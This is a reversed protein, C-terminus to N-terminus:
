APPPSPNGSSLLHPFNLKAKAGRMQFAARDYALAADQPTEYTGLWTRAGNRKPDRIEAAYKGWPRRRVGKYRWGGGGGGKEKKKEGAEGTGSSSAVHSGIEELEAAPGVAAAGPLLLDAAIISSSTSACISLSSNTQVTTWTDDLPSPHITNIGDFHHDTSGGSLLFHQISDLFQLDSDWSSSEPQRVGDNDAESIKKSM